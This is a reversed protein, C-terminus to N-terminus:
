FIFIRHVLSLMVIATAVLFTTHYSSFARHASSLFPPQNSDVVYFEAIMGACRIISM